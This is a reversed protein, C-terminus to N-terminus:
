PTQEDARRAISSLLQASADRVSQRNANRFTPWLPAVVGAWSVAASVVADDLARRRELERELEEIRDLLAPAHDPAWRAWEARAGTSAMVAKDVEDMPLHNLAYNFRKATTAVDALLERGKAITEADLKMPRGGDQDRTRADHRRPVPPDLVRRAVCSVCARDAGYKAFPKRGHVFCPTRLAHREDMTYHQCKENALLSVFEVPDMLSADPTPAGDQPPSCPPEQTSLTDFDELPSCSEVPGCSVLSEQPVRHFREGRDEPGVQSEPLLVGCQACQHTLPEVAPREEMPAPECAVALGDLIGAATDLAARREAHAGFTDHKDRYERVTEAAERYTAARVHEPKPEERPWLERLVDFAIDHAQERIRCSIRLAAARLAADNDLKPDAPM